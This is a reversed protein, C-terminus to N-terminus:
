LEEFEEIEYEYDDEFENNKATAFRMWALVYLLGVCLMTMTMGLVYPNTAGITNELFAKEQVPKVDIFASYHVEGDITVALRQLGPEAPKWDVIYTGVSEAAVVFRTNAIEESNGTLDIIEVKLPVEGEKMGDNRVHIQVVVPEEVEISVKSVDIGSRELSFQPEYKVLHWTHAPNNQSNEAKSFQNGALDRGEFRVKLVTQEQLIEASISSIDITGTFELRLGSNDDANLEMKMDGSMLPINDTVSTIWWYMRVSDEDIGHNESILVTIDHLQPELVAEERPSTFEVVEPGHGDVLIWQVAETQSTTDVGQRKYM